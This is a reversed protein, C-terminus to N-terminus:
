SHSWHGNTRSLYPLSFFTLQLCPQIFDVWWNVTDLTQLGYGFRCCPGSRSRDVSAPCGAAQRLFFAALFRHVQQMWHRPPFCHLFKLQIFVQHLLFIYRETWSKTPQSFWWHCFSLFYISIYYILIHIFVNLFRHNEWPSKFHTQERFTIKSVSRTMAITPSLFAFWMKRHKGSRTNSNTGAAAPARQQHHQQRWQQPWHHHHPQSIASSQASAEKMHARIAFHYPILFFAVRFPTYQLILWCNKKCGWRLLVVMKMDKM